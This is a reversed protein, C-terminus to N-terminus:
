DVVKIEVTVRRLSVELGLRKWAAERNARERDDPRLYDNAQEETQFVRWSGVCNMPEDGVFFMYGTRTM